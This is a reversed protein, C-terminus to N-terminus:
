QNTTREIQAKQSSQNPSLFVNFYLKILNNTNNPSSVYKKIYDSKDFVDNLWIAKFENSLNINNIKKIHIIFSVVERSWYLKAICM